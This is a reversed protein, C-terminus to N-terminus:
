SKCLKEAKKWDDLTNINLTGENELLMVKEGYISGKDLNEKKFLYIAGDPIWATPMDQRRVIRQNIPYGTLNPGVFKKGGFLSKIKEKWSVLKRFLMIKNNQNELIMAYPNYKEPVKEVSIISDFQNLNNELYSIATKVIVSKRFPATPQLLLILDFELDKIKPIEKKLVDYMSTNDKGLSPPRNLVRVNYEKAIKEIEKDDTDIIVNNIGCNVACDISYTILPKNGLLKINKKPISKSGGRAPIFALINM